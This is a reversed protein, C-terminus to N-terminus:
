MKMYANRRWVRSVLIMLLFFFSLTTDKGEGREKERLYTNIYLSCFAVVLLAFVVSGADLLLVM